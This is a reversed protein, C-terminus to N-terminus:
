LRKLSPLVRTTNFSSKEGITIELRSIEIVTYQPAGSTGTRQPGQRALGIWYHDKGLDVSVGTACFALGAEDIVVSVDGM